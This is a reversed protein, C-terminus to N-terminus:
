RRPARLRPALPRHDPGHRCPATASCTFASRASTQPGCARSGNAAIVAAIALGQGLCPLAVLDFARNTQSCAPPRWAAVQDAQALHRRQAASTGASLCTSFGQSPLGGGGRDGEPPAPRVGFSPPLGASSQDWLESSGSSWCCLHVSKSNDMGGRFILKFAHKALMELFRPFYDV